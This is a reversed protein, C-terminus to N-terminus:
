LARMARLENLAERAQYSSRVLPASFVYPIGLKKGLKAYEEFTDPHVYREVPLHEMTPRMYQGITVMSCGIAHLDHLLEAVMADTEGIGVMFGSKSIIGKEKVRKLVELSQAFDAQPRVEAYLSPHTEVNHNIIHPKAAVVMDLAAENGQFDPILVEITSHPLANKIATIVAAFHAAGGDPLDDRTVSTVVVHQLELIAAAKAVREPEDAELPGPNAPSINCFRCNRTCTDGMIMFTATGCTYCEHINPCKAGSCVTTLRLDDILNKTSSFNHGVPLPRRLWSPLRLPKDGQVKPTHSESQTTQCCAGTTCPTGSQNTGQQEPALPFADSPKM